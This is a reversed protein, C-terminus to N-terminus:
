IGVINTTILKISSNELFFNGNKYIKINSRKKKKKKKFKLYTKKSFNKNKKIKENLFKIYFIFFLPQSSLARM